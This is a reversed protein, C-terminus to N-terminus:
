IHGIPSHKGLTFFSLECDNTDNTPLIGSSDKKGIAAECGQFTRVRHGTADSM